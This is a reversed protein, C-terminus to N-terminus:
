WSYKVGLMGRTDSYGKDGVQVGVNGWVSLGNGLKGEVGTRIEGLNRAGDRSVRERDMKVSYTETNHLWNVELYPQFERGKGDDRQNHSNLYTKVGLRSQINGDGETEIRTGDHRYHANDKVGMWTVQAQPQIYWRNVTGESGNFEGVKLTYGGELSATVGRSRYDDHGRDDEEVSNKFWNYLVWSDLYAGTKEAANQYWTSYLGASYGSIRGDSGYGVRNSRTNSHENAYGWMVGLHWREEGDASWQAIDGGMQLVYRNSRTKLQGEGAASRMHGGVHRMWLSGAGVGEGRLADVYQPEGLRDHLRHNFLSSAVALNNIYSGAEPRLAPAAGPDVIPPSAPTPGSWQSTLYWNSADNGQGRALTYAYAGAEVTGTTLAFDGASSGGVDILEIGNVTQAGTGGVNNVQVRTSGSTDGSVTMKDTASNDDGLTTNFVMLGNNGSYNGNVALQNGPQAGPRNMMVTGGNNLDGGVTTHAVQLTGDQMVNVDGATSGFGSLVAGSHINVQSSAMAVSSTADNGLAIKGANIDTVGSYGASDATLTLIGRGLKSLGGDGSIVNTLTWDADSSITLQGNDVIEASGLHRQESVTMVSSDDISFLGSFGSNDGSLTSDSVNSVQVTGTGRLSNAVEGSIGNLTLTGDNVINGSGAGEADNISVEAGNSITTVVSLNRNAGNVAFVGGIVNLAGGGTLVGHSTGGNELTLSGDNFALTSGDQGTFLGATQATGNLDATAGSHIFLESTNGLAGSADTRLTGALVRTAGSYSNLANSLSVLGTSNVALDGDGGIKASMDAAAGSAGSHEALELTKGAHITLAKLGYNVYLGDDPATTLRIGYEGDAVVTGNQAIAVSEDEGIANGNQDQLVLAGGSGQVTQAAILQMGVHTDDQELLNLTTDPNAAGPDNWPDPLTVRVNGTGATLTQTQIQGPAQSDAPLSANFIVTGGNFNLGGIQQVGDGVTTTNGANSKLTALTLAQTNDGSLAFTSKNLEVVGTFAAGTTDAFDFANTTSALDVRLLGSGSLANSLRYDGASNSAGLIELIGEEAIAVTSSGLGTSGSSSHSAVTLTGGNVQTQGSYTNEGTFVTHGADQIVTGLNGSILPNVVYGVASSNTHNFVLTGDGNGFIIGTTGTIFGADVANEGHAAGINLTGHSGGNTGLFINGNNLALTSSRSLTLTGTGNSGIDVSNGQLLSGAGDVRVNGVGSASGGIGISGAKVQGATEINLEGNGAMGVTLDSTIDWLGNTNVNATGSGGAEDGISARQSSRVEGSDSVNLTGKGKDGVITESSSLLSGAHNVTVTGEGSVGNGLMTTGANVTGTTNINLTGASLHGVVLSRLSTGADDSLEWHGGTTVNVQGNSNADNSITGAGTSKVEGNDSINLTAAGAYGVIMGGTFMKANLGSVNITGSAPVWRGVTVLGANVTGGSLVDLTGLGEVGVGLSQLVGAASSNDWYGGSEVKAYGTSQNVRGVVSGGISKVVANNTISLDGKGSDGVILSDATMKSNAGDVNLTGIARTWGGVRTEGSTVTGGQLIDLSGTGAGGLMLKLATGGADTINWVANNVVVQGTSEEVRGIQSEGTSKVVATNTINLKGQGVDGVALTGTTLTSNTGNVNVTGEAGQVNGIQTAGATVTSASNINLEGVGRYGVSLSSSNVMEWLSGDSLTVTGTSGASRSIMSADDSYVAGANSINLEGFGYDAVRLAGTNFSSGSGDVNVTGRGDGFSGLTTTGVIVTGGTNINLIAEAHYGINLGRYTNADDLLNWRGNNTVNVLGSSATDFAIMTDGATNVVASDRINLTGAGYDGVRLDRTNLISGTGEVTVMGSSGSNSGIRTSNASVSGGSLVSLTGSGTNGILLTSDNLDWKGNNEVIVTGQSGNNVGIMSPSGGSGTVVAGDTVTMKGVGTLGVQYYTDDLNTDFTIDQNGDIVTQARSSASLAAMIMFSLLSMKGLSSLSIFLPSLASSRSPNNTSLSMHSKRGSLESCVQFVKLASNWVVRYIKNM